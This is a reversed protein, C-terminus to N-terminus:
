QRGRLPAPVVLREMVEFAAHLVLALAAAPLAGALLMVHDNLALGQAIREGFGGAGIFAAITATGVNVVAATKVGALITPAALPLEVHRLVAPAELGLARGAQRLGESVGLMGTHTNRVIPLLAYLFLAIMAPWVGIAGTIPILVALLALSPITQVLGAALLVPQAVRRRRAALIGLPVGVAIAALLSGLVLAVHQWLLRMFDAAFVAHWVGVRGSSPRAGLFEAAVSAFDRGDLEARGNLRIMTAEDLRGELATVAAWARPHKAPADARHLFLADYRPFHRRDDELVRIGYRAIKADTSYLDIADVEGAALAEYALGHDLARPALAGLEYRARLGPWGDERGMFEHSFGLRLDPHAALDSIRRLKRADAVAAGVGIAYSNSFGLPVSAALGREALRTNMEAPELDRGAQLIERAITGAYEPYADIADNALAQALIATNGMGPKHVAEAGARRVGQVAIEGLIYSETFRKSGIRLAPEGAWAAPMAAVLACLCLAAIRPM